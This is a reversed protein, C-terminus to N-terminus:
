MACGGQDQPKSRWSSAWLNKSNSKRLRVGAYDCCGEQLTASPDQSNHTGPTWETTGGYKKVEDDYGLVQVAQPSIARM